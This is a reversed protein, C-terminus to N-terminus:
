NGGSGITPNNKDWWLRQSNLVSPTEDRPSTFGQDTNAQLWKSVNLDGPEPPLFEEQFLFKPSMPPPDQWYHLVM